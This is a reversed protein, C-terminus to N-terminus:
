FSVGADSLAKKLRANEADKETAIAIAADKEFIAADKEFIAADKEFIAADKEFIAADKEAIAAANRRSLDEVQKTLTAKEVSHESHDVWDALNKVVRCPISSSDHVADIDSVRM